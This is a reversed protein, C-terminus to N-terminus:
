PLLPREVPAALDARDAYSEISGPFRVSHSAAAVAFATAEPLRAGDHLAAVLAGLFQDGAGTTDVADVREAPAHVVNLDYGAYFAGLEGATVIAQSEPWRAALRAALEAPAATAGLMAAAEHHNAVLLDVEAMLASDVDRCPSPNLITLARGERAVTFAAAVADISAELQAAVISAGRIVDAAAAVSEADFWSTLDPSSAIIPIGSPPLMVFGVDTPRGEVVRVWRTDVGERGLYALARRGRDDDGLVSVLAVPAGLRAAAIAQNTAKGGDLPEDYGWGRVSEGEAIASEVHMFLGQVHAGVIVVDGSVRAGSDRVAAAM